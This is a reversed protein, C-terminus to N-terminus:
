ESSDTLNKLSRCLARRRHRGLNTGATISVMVAMPLRCVKTERWKGGGRRLRMKSIKSQGYKRNSNKRFFVRM